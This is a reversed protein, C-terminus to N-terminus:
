NSFKKPVQNWLCFRSTDDRSLVRTVRNVLYPLDYGESNWGTIIDSDDLLDLFTQLLQAESNFVFTNDFHKAVSQAIDEHMTKPKLALTILQQLQSLYVTIATIPATPDNPESFGKEPDFDAEIDVYCINLIPSDAGLYNNALCRFIPNIDSEYIQNRSNIKLERNFEKKNKSYFRSVPRDHITKHKGKIDDFYFVYEVPYQKYQRKGDVREAVHIREQEKDLYADIYM